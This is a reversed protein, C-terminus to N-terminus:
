EVIEFHYKKARMEFAYKTGEMVDCIEKRIYEDDMTGEFKVAVEDKESDMSIIYESDANVPINANHTVIIIQRKSKSKKLRTVILDYVLKNDLDDEPQDLLLPMDGYALLFTLIASTKQGASANSLPIDKSSNEPRYTVMLDDEPLFSIMRAFAEPQMELISTRTYKSFSKKDNEKRIDWMQQRFQEIGKNVFFIDALKNIDEEITTNDKNLVSKMMQIFSSRNRSRQIKFKVNSDKGMLDCTFKSRLEHIEKILNEYHAYLKERESEAVQLQQKDSNIKDLDRLRAKKKELLEDLKNFDLGQGQLLHCAQKYKEEVENVQKSWESKNISDILENTDKAFLELTESLAKERDKLLNLDKELLAQIEQHSVGSYDITETITEDIVKSIRGIQNNKQTIYDDIAKKEAAFKQKGDLAVSIGSENYKSIQDDIDSIETKIKAEEAISKQLGWIKLWQTIVQNLSDDREDLKQHFNDIDEDIINILSKSDLAIEYIQKQTYIQAKFFDLYNKDDIEIWEGNDLQKYLIRVQNDMKKIDKIVLKYTDSVREFLIEITSDKTFVGNKGKGFKEKGSEKYFNEQEQKISDLSEADFSQMGGALSRIISSKGSGRGGIITNLQPNFNITIDGKNLITNNIKISKIWLEPEADPKDVSECISKVRMDHSLLAQRVSELNPTRNMKIWTYDKGIGWLGHESEKEASPNDSFTLLPLESKNALDFAHCWEKAKDQSINKGYKESLKLCIADWNNKGNKGAYENWIESNVVQVADIYRRNLVKKMNDYSIECIGNFEDIHAAIILGGMQRAKSCVSLIDGECTEKSVGYSGKRIGVSNLFERIDEGKCEVDFLVLLHIKSSDCSLEVGPFVIIGKEECLQKIRDIGQYDNHDTIAVCQLGKEEVERVWMEPTDTQTKYCKSSMTHLHFDSKYWRLGVYDNMKQM